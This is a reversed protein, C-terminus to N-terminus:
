KNNRNTNYNWPCFGSILFHSTPFSDDLKMESALLLDLNPSIESCLFDFKNRVSNINQQGIIPRNQSKLKINTLARLNKNEPEYESDNITTPMAFDFVSPYEADINNDNIVGPCEEPKNDNIVGPCEKPKWTSKISSLISKALCSTGTPNLHLGKNGLNIANINRNGIIDRDLQLLYNTLQSVTFAVKGDGNRLTPTSVVVKCNPLNNIIFFKLTLLNDLIKWSTSYTADNTGAHIIFFSPGKPLLPIIHHKMDDVTAPQFNQVKVVRGKRSM